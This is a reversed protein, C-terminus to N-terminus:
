DHKWQLCEAGYHPHCEKWALPSCVCWADKQFWEWDDCVEMTCMMPEEPMPPAILDIKEDKMDMDMMTQAQAIAFLAAAATFKM